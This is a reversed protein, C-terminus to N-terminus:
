GVKWIELGWYTNYSFNGSTIADYDLHRGGGYTARTYDVIHRILFAKTGPGGFSVIGSGISNSNEISSSPRQNSGNLYVYSDTSNYFQAQHEQVGYGTAWFRVYYTGYGLTVTNNTTSVTAFGGNNTYTHNLDRTVWTNSTLTGGDTGSAATTRMGVHVYFDTNLVGGAWVATGSSSYKLFQGSSGGSPVHKYGASTSHAITGSTTITGGTIAGTTAVSTVTGTAGTAVSTVRGYADLTITDIKTGNSTSGHSGAGAGATTLAIDNANATIGTGGIVNLTPNITSTGTQTMGTGATVSTVTGSGSSVTQWTNDGRLFKSTISSGSGLQSAAIVNTVYLTDAFVSAWRMTNGGLSYTGDVSPSISGAISSLGLRAVAVTGSSINSGNLATINSGAGYLTDAFVVAWRTTNGGLSYTSDASPSITSAISSLGLRAVAVTGSSINSGNLSTLSAGNGSFANATVTGSFNGANGYITLWRLGSSGLNYSVNSSPTVHGAFTGTTATLGGTFTGAGVVDTGTGSVTLRTVGGARFFHSTVAGNEPSNSVRGYYADTGSWWILQTSTAGSTQGLLATNAMLRARNSFEVAGSFTASTGTLSGSTITNVNLNFQGNSRTAWTNWGTGATNLVALDNRSYLYGTHQVYGQTTFAGGVEMVGSFTAAAGTINRSADIVTTSGINFGGLANVTYNDGNGRTVVDHWATGANNLIKYNGSNYVTSSSLHGTSVLNAGSTITGSFTATTGTLSGTIETNGSGDIKIRNVGTTVFWLQNSGPRWIGTDTDGTFSISPASVTGSSNYVAGSVTLGASFDGAGSYVTSWRSANTGCTFQGNSYPRLHGNIATAASFYFQSRDTTIHCWSTSQPGINIYGSPTTVRLSGSSSQTLNATSSNTLNLAGSFTASTGTLAGGFNAAGLVDLDYSTSPIKKIGVRGNHFQYYKNGTTSSNINFKFLHDGTTEDQNLEFEVIRDEVKISMAEGTSGVRTVWLPKNGSDTDVIVNGDFRASGSFTASTGTLAGTLTGGSLPLFSLTPTNLLKNYDGYPLTNSQTRIINAFSTAFSVGWGDEDGDWEDSSYGAFVDRVVVQPHAWTSNTEGIYVYYEASTGATNNDGFRVTFNRAVGGIIVASTNSWTAGTYPYGSIYASFSENNAYDFVDVWFTVMSDHFPPLKIRIAGTHLNVGAHYYGGKPQWCHVATSSPRFWFAPSSIGSAFTATGGGTINGSFAATTGTLAGSLTTSGGTLSFSSAALLMPVSASASDNLASLKVTGSADGIVINSNTACKIHLKQGAFLATTGISVAGLVTVNHGGSGAQSFTTIYASGSSTGHYRYARAATSEWDLYYATSNNNWFRIYGTNSGATGISLRQNNAINLGLSATVVGSFTASTGTLAGTLTTDGAASIQLRNTLSATGGALGSAATYFTTVGAKEMAMLAGSGDARLKWGSNYYLNSGLNMAGATSGLLIAGTGVFFQPHINSTPLTTGIAANGSFTASTGTLAGGVDLTNSIDLNSFYGSGSVKLNYTGPDETGISVKGDVNIQMAASGGNYKFALNNNGPGPTDGGIDWYDTDDPAILRLGEAWDAQKVTLRGTFNATTGTLAGTGTVAFKATSGDSTIRLADSATTTQQIHLAPHAGGSASLQGFDAMARTASAVNRTVYAARATGAQTVTLPATSGDNTTATISATGAVTTTVLSAM